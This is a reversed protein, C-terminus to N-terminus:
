FFVFRGKEFVKADGTVMSGTKAVSMIAKVEAGKHAQDSPVSSKLEPVRVVSMCIEGTTDDLSLDSSSWVTKLGDPASRKSADPLPTSQVLSPKKPVDVVPPPAAAQGGRRGITM